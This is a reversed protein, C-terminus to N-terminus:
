ILLIRVNFEDEFRQVKVSTNSFLLKRATNVTPQPMSSNKKNSPNVQQLLFIKLFLDTPKRKM